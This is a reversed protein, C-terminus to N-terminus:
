TLFHKYQELRYLIPDSSIKKRNLGKKIGRLGNNSPSFLTVLKLQRINTFINETLKIEEYKFKGINNNKFGSNIDDIIPNLLEKVLVSVLQSTL